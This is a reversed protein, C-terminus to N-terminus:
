YRAGGGEEIATNNAFTCRTFTARWGCASAGGGHFALNDRFWCDVIEAPNGVCCLGGGESDPSRNGEFRCGRVMPAAGACHVGGGWDHWGGTITVGELALWEADAHILFAQHPQTESGECDIVCTEPDGSQSRITLAKGRYDVDRNGDGTFTGNALEIM